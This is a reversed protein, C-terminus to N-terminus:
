RRAPRAIAVADEGGIGAAEAASYAALATEASSTDSGLAEATAIITLLDKRMSSVDFAVEASDGMILPAKMGLVALAAASDGLADLMLRRDLGGAEGMALAEALAHWYVGLPLNIVLKLLAGHGAQGAHIIRRTLVRLVPEARAIDETDGGVLAV